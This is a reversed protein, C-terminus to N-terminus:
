YVNESYMCEEDSARAAAQHIGISAGCQDDPKGNRRVAENGMPLYGDLIDVSHYGFRRPQWGYRFNVRVTRCKVEYM